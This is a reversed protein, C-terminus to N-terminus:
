TDRQEYWGSAFILGDHLVAWTHKRREAGQEPNTLVYTIWRGSEEAGLLDDGYFYGVADIREDPDRGIFMPNFHAITRGDEGVIFVYWQGDVSEETNYYDVAADRGLADYLSIAQRVFDQTYAPPDYKPTGPEYWGSGFFLGDHRVTWSHKTESAGTQPNPFTYTFWSGAEDAVAAIAEGAPYGNPGVAESAPRGVLAPNVAHALAIDDDNYIFLYWQGDVSEQTNYYELTADLGDSEYMDIAQRVFHQTYADNDSKLPADRESDMGPVSTPEGTDCAPLIALLMLLLAATATTFITRRNM